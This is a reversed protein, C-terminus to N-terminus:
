CAVGALGPLTTRAAGQTVTLTARWAASDSAEHTSTRGTRQLRLQRGGCQLTRKGDTFASVAAEDFRCLNFRKPTRIMVETGTAQILTARRWDFSFTCGSETGRNMDAESLPLLAPTPAAKVPPPVPTALLALALLM